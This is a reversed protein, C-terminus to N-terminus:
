PNVLSALMSMSGTFPNTEHGVINDAYYTGQPANKYLNYGVTFNTMHCGTTNTALTAPSMTMSNTAASQFPVAVAWVGPNIGGTAASATLSIRSNNIWNGVTPSGARTLDTATATIQFKRTASVTYIVEGLQWGNNLNNVWNGNLVVNSTVTQGEPELDIWNPLMVSINTTANDSDRFQTSQANAGTAAFAFAAAIIVKKM